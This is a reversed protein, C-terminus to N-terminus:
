SGSMYRLLKRRMGSGSRSLLRFSARRLGALRWHDLRSWLRSM